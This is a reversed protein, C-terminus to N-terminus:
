LVNISYIDNVMAKLNNQYLDVNRCNVVQHFKYKVGCEACNPNKTLDFKSKNAPIVNHGCKLWFIKEVMSSSTFWSLMKSNLM